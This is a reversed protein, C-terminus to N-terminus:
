STYLLCTKGQDESAASSGILRYIVLVVDFVDISIFVGVVLVIGVVFCSFGLVLVYIFGIDLSNDIFALSTIDQEVQTFSSVIFGAMDYSSNGSINIASNGVRVIVGSGSIELSSEFSGSAISKASVVIQNQDAVGALFISLGSSTQELIHAYSSGLDVSEFTAM